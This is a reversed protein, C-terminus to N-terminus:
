ANNKFWEQIASITRETEKRMVGETNPEYQTRLVSEVRKLVEGFDPSRVRNLIKRISTMSVVLQEKDTESLLNIMKAYGDIIDVHENIESLFSKGGDFSEGLLEEVNDVLKEPEYDIKAEFILVAKKEKCLREVGSRLSGRVTIVYFRRCTDKDIMKRILRVGTEQCEALTYKEPDEAPLMIDVISLDFKEGKDILLQVEAGTHCITIDNYGANCLLGKYGIATGKADEIILIKNKESGGM